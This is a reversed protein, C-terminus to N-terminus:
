KKRLGAEETCQGEKASTGSCETTICINGYSISVKIVNHLTTPLLAVESLYAESTEKEDLPLPAYPMNDSATTRRVAPIFGEGNNRSAYVVEQDANNM